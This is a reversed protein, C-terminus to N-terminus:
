ADEPPYWGIISKMSDLNDTLMKYAFLEAMYLDIKNQPKLEKKNPYVNGAADEKAMVSSRCFEQVPSPNIIRHAKLDIRHEKMIPSLTRANQAVKICNSEGIRM